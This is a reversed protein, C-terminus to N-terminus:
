TLNNIKVGMTILRSELNEIADVVISTDTTSVATESNGSAGIVSGVLNKLGTLADGIGLSAENNQAGAQQVTGEFNAIM